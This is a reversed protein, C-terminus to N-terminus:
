PAPSRFGSVTRPLLSVRERGPWSGGPVANKRYLSSPVLNFAIQRGFVARPLDHFNLLSVSQQYLEEVGGAGAASAPQFVVVTAERLGLRTM